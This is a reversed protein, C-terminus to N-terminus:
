NVHIGTGHMVGERYSVWAPAARMFFLLFVLKRGVCLGRHSQCIGWAGFIPGNVM